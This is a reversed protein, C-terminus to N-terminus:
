KAAETAGSVLLSPNLIGFGVRMEALIAVLNRIFFDAHSDTATITTQERDWLVCTSLDGLIFKKQGSLGPVVVRPRGWIMSIGSGWPGPGYFRGNNDKLLDLQEDMEPSILIASVQAGKNTIKSIARRITTLLDTDFEQAQLGTTNLIGDFEEEGRPSDKDGSLILRELEEELGQRLHADIMTRIQAADSLTKRTVPMWHAVTVVEASAKRFGLASEPKVGVAGTTAPAEKVTKAANKTVGGEATPVVQAYEIKDTGTTGNTIVERLKPAVYPYPVLGLKQPTILNSADSEAQGSSTLLGKMGGPVSMPTMALDAKSPIGEPFRSRLGQYENSKVFMEGVSRPSPAGMGKRAGNLAEKNLEQADEAKLLQEVQELEGRTKAEAQAKRKGEQAKAFLDSISKREDDTLERAAGEATAAIDRAAELHKVWPTKTVTM